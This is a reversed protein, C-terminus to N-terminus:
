RGAPGPMPAAPLAWAAAGAAAIASSKLFDRRSPNSNSMSTSRSFVSSFTTVFSRVPWDGNQQPRSPFGPGMTVEACTCSCASERKGATTSRYSRSASLGLNKAAFAALEALHKEDSGGGYPQSYWTCYGVPQPRLRIAYVRAVAAAWAELGSRADGFSGLAFTELPADKGPDIRLRGYDIQPELIVQGRASKSFVVGSGRDFTLWGAVVGRRSKPDAVALWAYSGPNQDASALGGTGLTQLENTPRGLDLAVSLPRVERRVVPQVGRNHLTSRFLVFPLDPFLRIADRSGDPFSVELERGSGFVHDAIDSKKLAGGTGSLKGATVFTRGPIAQITFEGKVADVTIRFAANKLSATKDAEKAGALTAGWIAM